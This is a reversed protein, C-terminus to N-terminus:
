VSRRGSPRSTWPTLWSAIPGTEGPDTVELRADVGEGDGAARRADRADGGPENTRRTLVNSLPPAAPLSLTSIFGLSLPSPAWPLATPASSEEGLKQKEVAGSESTIRVELGRVLLTPALRRLMLLLLREPQPADPRRSM